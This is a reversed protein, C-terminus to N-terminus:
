PMTELDNLMWQMQQSISVEWVTEDEFREFFNMLVEELKELSKERELCINRQM